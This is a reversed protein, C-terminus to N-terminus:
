EIGVNYSHGISGTEFEGYLESVNSLMTTQNWRSKTGRKMWWENTVPDLVANGGDGPNTVVYDNLTQGYRTSNRFTVHDNFDHEIRLTGIDSKTKRYDRDLLGYFKDRGIGLTGDSTTAGIKRVLPVGYDSMDDTQMHYYSLTVRTPTGLGFSLSPAIGWRSF